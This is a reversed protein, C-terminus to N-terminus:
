PACPGAQQEMPLAGMNRLHGLRSRGHAHELHELLSPDHKAAPTHCVAWEAVQADLTDYEELITGSERLTNLRIHDSEVSLDLLEKAEM